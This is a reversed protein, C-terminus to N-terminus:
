EISLVKWLAIKYLNRNTVLYLRGVISHHISSHTMTWRRLRGSAAHSTDVREYHHSRKVRNGASGREGAARVFLGIECATAPPHHLIRAPARHMRRHLFFSSSLNNRGRLSGSSNNDFSPPSRFHSADLRRRRGGRGTEEFASEGEKALKARRRQM